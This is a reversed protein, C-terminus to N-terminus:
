TIGKKLNPLTIPLIEIQEWENRNIESSCCDCQGLLFNLSGVVIITNNHKLFYGNPYLKQLRHCINYRPINEKEHYLSPFNEKNVKKWM